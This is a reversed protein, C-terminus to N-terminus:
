QLQLETQCLYSEPRTRPYQRYTSGLLLRSRYARAFSTETAREQVLACYTEYRHAGVVLGSFSLIKRSIRALYNLCARGADIRCGVAGAVTGSSAGAVAKAALPLSIAGERRSWILLEAAAHNLIKSANGVIIHAVLCNLSIKFVETIGM